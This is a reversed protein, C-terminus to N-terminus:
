LKFKEGYHPIAEKSVEEKTMDEWVELPKNEYKLMKGAEIQKVVYRVGLRKLGLERAIESHNKGEAVKARIQTIVEGRMRNDNERTKARNKLSYKINKKHTVLKLNSISCNGMNTDEHHIVKGPKYPGNKSIWVLIHLYVYVKTGEHHISHQKQGTNQIRPKVEKWEGNPRFSELIGKEHDVRYRGKSLIYLVMKQKDVKM